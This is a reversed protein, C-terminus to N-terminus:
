YFFQCAFDLSLQFQLGISSNIGGLTANVISYGLYYALAINICDFKKFIIGPRSISIQSNDM